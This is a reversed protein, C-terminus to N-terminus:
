RGDESVKEPETLAYARRLHERTAAMLEVQDGTVPFASIMNFAESLHGRLEELKKEDM